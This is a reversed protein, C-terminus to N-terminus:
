STPSSFTCRTATPGSSISHRARVRLWSSRTDAAPSCGAFQRASPSTMTSSSCPPRAAGAAPISKAVPEVRPLVIEFTAGRGSESRVTVNGGSQKVIGFVTALGLGTGKGVEKTTFFPEFIRAQTVADMGCGTDRVTLVVYRGPSVGAAGAAAHDLVANRTEIVLRGGRPMADRANVVLNLLVQDVHGPDAKIAGLDEALVTSVVITAGILRRLMPELYAVAVNLSLVKPEIPTQRSFALLQRTLAAGRHAAATIQALDPAVPHDPGLAMASLDAYSLVTALMNNFDHAVGGALQGVAEMKQSQRLQDELRRTETVDIGIAMMALRGDVSVPHSTIAIDFVTGDKKRHKKTGRWARARGTTRRAESRARAESEAEALDPDDELAKLGTVKMALLEARTYSYLDVAADNVALLQYSQPDFLWIPLPSEDFLLRYSDESLGMSDPPRPVLSNAM